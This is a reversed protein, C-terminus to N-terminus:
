YQFYVKRRKKDKQHPDEFISRKQEPQGAADDPAGQGRESAGKSQAFEINEVIVDMTFVNNGEKNIYSGTQLRGAVVIKIGQRLYKEAFEAQRDFATCSIVDATQQSGDRPVRRDVALTFRAIAIPRDGQSYSIIPDRTLRGLLLVKNM